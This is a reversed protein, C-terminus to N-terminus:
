SYIRNVSNIKVRYIMTNIEKEFDFDKNEILSEEDIKEIICELNKKQVPKLDKYLMLNTTEYRYKAIINKLKKLENVNSMVFNNDDIKTKKGINILSLFLVNFEDFNFLINSEM